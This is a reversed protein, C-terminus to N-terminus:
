SLPIDGALAFMQLNTVVVREAPESRGVVERLQEFYALQM